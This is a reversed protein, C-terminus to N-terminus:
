NQLSGYFQKQSVKSLFFSVCVCLCVSVCGLVFDAVSIVSVGLRHKFTNTITEIDSIYRSNTMLLNKMFSKVVLLMSVTLYQWSCKPKEKGLTNHALRTDVNSNLNSPKKDTSYDTAYKPPWEAISGKANCARIKIVFVCACHMFTQHLAKQRLCMLKFITNWLADSCTMKMWFISFNKPSLCLGEWARCRVPTVSLLEEKEGAGVRCWV